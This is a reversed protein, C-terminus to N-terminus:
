EGRVLLVPVSAGRVVGDTVSGLFLRSLGTRGHTGIVILDASWDGAERDIVSAIREGHADLLATEVAAGGASAKKAAQALVREGSQRVAQQLGAYDVNAYGETDLPYVEESVHVLRLRARDGALKVAEQLARAATDSGDVPVLIRQYM